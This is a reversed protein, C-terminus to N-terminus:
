KKVFKVIKNEGSTAVTIKFLYTGAAWSEINYTIATAQGTLEKTESLMEKSVIDFAIIKVMGSTGTIQLNLENSTPNPYVLVEMVKDYQVTVVNSYIYSGNKDVQKLRYYNIGDYPISDTLSYNKIKQGGAAKVKGIATFIKGDASKEVIFYDSNIELATTWYTNVGVPSKMAGFEILEAPLPINCKKYVVLTDHPLTFFSGDSFNVTRAPEGPPNYLMYHKCNNKVFVHTFPWNATTLDLVGVSDFTHIWQHMLAPHLGEFTTNVAYRAGWDNWKVYTYAPDNLEWGQYETKLQNEMDIAWAPDWMSRYMAMLTRWTKTRYPTPIAFSKGSDNWKWLIGTALMEKQEMEDWMVQMHPRNYGLYMSAGTMPLWNIIYKGAPPVTFFTEFNSSAGWITAAVKDTCIPDNVDSDENWWYYETGKYEMTAIFLGWDRISPQNTNAGWLAVATAFNISESSSEIDLGTRGEARGSIWSHGEYPDFYRMYGFLPDNRDWSNADRILMEVMPGWDKAWQQDYRAVMAAAKIFYGWHLQHDNFNSAAYHGSPYGAMSAHQADYVFFKYRDCGACIDTADFWDQLNAKISDMLLKFVAMDGVQRAIPLLDAYKNLFKGHEYTEGYFGYPPPGNKGNPNKDYFLSTQLKIEELTERMYLSDGTNAWGLNPLLGVHTYTVDFSNGYYLRMPGRPSRYTLASNGAASWKYQHMYLAQVTENLSGAPAGPVLQTTLTFTNNMLAGTMNYNYSVKSDQVYAFARKQFEALVAPDNNPLAAISFYKAGAPLVIRFCTFIFTSDAKGDGNWDPMGRKSWDFGVRKFTTPGTHVTDMFGATEMDFLYSFYNTGDSLGQIVTGTPFFIGYHKFNGDNFRDISIGISNATTAWHNFTGTHSINVPANGSRKCQAFPMGHGSTVELTDGTGYPWIVKATWDGYKDVQTGKSEPVWPMADVRYYIGDYRTNGGISVNLDTNFDYQVTSTRNVDPIPGTFNALGYQSLGFGYGRNNFVLPHPHTSSGYAATFSKPLSTELTGNANVDGFIDRTETNTIFNWIHTSWWEPSQFRQNFNATVKPTVQYKRRDTGIKAYHDDANLKYDLSCPPNPVPNGCWGVIKSPVNYINYDFSTTYSGSKGNPYVVQAEISNAQLLVTILASVILRYLREM